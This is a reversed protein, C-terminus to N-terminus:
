AGNRHDLLQLGVDFAAALAVGLQEVVVVVAGRHLGHEGRELFHVALVIRDGSVRAEAASEPLIVPPDGDGLKGADVAAIDPLHGDGHIAAVSLIRARTHEGLHAAHDARDSREHRRRLDDVDVRERELVDRSPPDVHGGQLREDLVGEVVHLGHIGAELEAQVPDRTQRVSAIREVRRVHVLVDVRRHLRREGVPIRAEDVVAAEGVVRRIADAAAQVDVALDELRRAPFRVDLAVREGILEVGGHALRDLALPPLLALERAEVRLRRQADEEVIEDRLGFLQLVREDHIQVSLEKRQRRDAVVGVRRARVAMRSDARDRM